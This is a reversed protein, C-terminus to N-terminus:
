HRRSQCAFDPFVTFRDNRCALLGVDAFTQDGIGTEFHNQTTIKRAIDFKGTFEELDLGAPYGFQWHPFRNDPKGHPVILGKEEREWFLREFIHSNWILDHGPPVSM